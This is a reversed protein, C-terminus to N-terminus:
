LNLGKYVEDMEIKTLGIYRLTDSSNTHNLLKQTLGLNKTGKYVHFGFTKRLSHSGLNLGLSKGADNILKWAQCRKIAENGKRSLFLVEEPGAGKREGLYEKLAKRVSENLPFSKTKKTKGEKITISEKIKDGEIVDTIKLSLLDSIRLASNIGMTFLLIDRKNGLLRKVKDIEKVSRVPEVIKM